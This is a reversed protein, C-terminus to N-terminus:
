DVSFNQLSVPLSTANVVLVINMDAFGVSALSTIDAIGSSSARIYSPANAPNISPTANSGIFFSHGATQGDPTAVEIVLDHTLGNLSATLPVNLLSGAQDAVTVAATGIAPGLNALTLATANPVAYLNVTIPQNGGAGTAQEVGVDVSAITVTGTAAFHTDLDFRRYYSNDAHLGGANCSISNSATIALSGSQTLAFNGTPAPHQFTTPNAVSANRSLSPQAM